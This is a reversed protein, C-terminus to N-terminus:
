DSDTAAFIALSRGDRRTCGVGVDICVHEFWDSSSAFVTLWAADAHERVIALAADEPAGALAALCRWAQLRGYAASRGEAYAGGLTFLSWLMGLVEDAPAPAEHSPERLPGLCDLPLGRVSHPGTSARISLVRAEYRGNPFLSEDALGGAIRARELDDLELARELDADPLSGAVQYAFTTFSRTFVFWNGLLDHVAPSRMRVGRELDLLTLPLATLPHREDSRAQWFRRVTASDGAPEELGVLEQTFCLLAEHMRSDDVCHEVLHELAEVPQAYGLVAGVVRSWARGRQAPRTWSPVTRARLVFAERASPDRVQALAFLADSRLQALGPPCAQALHDYLAAIWRWRGERIAVPLHTRQEIWLPSSKGPVLHQYRAVLEPVTLSLPHAV